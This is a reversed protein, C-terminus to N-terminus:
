TVDWNMAFSAFAFSTADSKFYIIFFFLYGPYYHRQDINIRM